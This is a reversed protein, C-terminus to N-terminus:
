GTSCAHLPSAGEQWLHHQEQEWPWGVRPLHMPQTHSSIICPARLQARYQQQVPPGRWAGGEEVGKESAPLYQQKISNCSGQGHQQAEVSGRQAQYQQKMPPRGAGWAPGEM